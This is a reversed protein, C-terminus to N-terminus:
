KDAKKERDKEEKLNFHKALVTMVEQFTTEEVLLPGLDQDWRNKLKKARNFMKIIDFEQESAQCKKKVIDLDIKHGAQIIKYLDFHDRPKNRGITAAMKEAMMEKKNLTTISFSPIHNSYLHPIQHSEPELILDARENLDILVTGFLGDLDKYNAVLRTFKHVKKDHTVSEFFGSAEIIEVIEKEVDQIPSTLSYDIDESIRAYNLFIKNLATGGKFYAGKLDRLLYLLITVYYDKTVLQSKFKVKAIVANLEDKTIPIIEKM